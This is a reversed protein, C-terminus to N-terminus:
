CDQGPTCHSGQGALSRGSPPRSRGVPEALIRINLWTSHTLSAWELQRKEARGQQLM